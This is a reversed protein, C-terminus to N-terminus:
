CLIWALIANLANVKNTSIPNGSWIVIKNLATIKLPSCEQIANCAGDTCGNNCNRNVRLPEVSSRCWHEKVITSSVCYDTWSIYNGLYNSTLTGKVNEDFGGDSDTCYVDVEDCMGDTCGDSCIEQLLGQSSAICSSSSTGPSNCTWTVYDQYVKDLYCYGEGVLGDTGCDTSSSCSVDNSYCGTRSDKISCSSGDGCEVTKEEKNDGSCYYELFALNDDKCYDYYNNGNYNVGNILNSCYSCDNPCNLYTEGSECNGDNDCIPIDEEECDTIAGSETDRAITRDCPSDYGSYDYCDDVKNWSTVLCVDVDGDRCAFQGSTATPNTCGGPSTCEEVQSMGRSILWNCDSSTTCVWYPLSSGDEEYIEAGDVCYESDRAESLTSYAALGEKKGQIMIIVM